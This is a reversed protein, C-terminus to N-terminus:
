KRSEPDFLKYKKVEAIDKTGALIMTTTLEKNLHLFVDSVGESGGLILGYLAPRGIAVVDAGSALAKFVHTGRRVGSDFVIPVRKNVKKAILPLMDFTAPAGDLQRGGHNSIWIGDAGAVIATEAAEPSLIGKVLVPLGSVRKILRIDEGSFSIKRLARSESQTMTKDKYFESVNPTPISYNYNNRLDAERNGATGADVTIIIAKAGAAKAKKVIYENYANDKSMYLQFFFPAGPASKAIEDIPVSSYTSIAMITGAKQTGRITARDAEKHVLGHAAMPAIIVPSALDIGLFKTKLDAGEIGKLGNPLIKKNDFACPNGRLTIEDEAGGQVYGFAGKGVRTSAEKELDYLNIIRIHGEADSVTASKAAEQAMAAQSLFLASIVAVAQITKKM